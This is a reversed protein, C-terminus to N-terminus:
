FSGKERLHGGTGGPGGGRVATGRVAQDRYGTQRLYAGPHNGPDAGQRHGAGPCQGAARENEGGGGAGAEPDMRVPVENIVCEPMKLHDVSKMSVTIDSIKRYISEDAGPRLKWSFVQGNGWRDPTFFAERYRGIFRGLREGMDLLRYEAFLDMYGNPSPTGTLGVIRKVFPRVKMLSRFRKAQWNKFSSLEDIVVMDWRFPIGSQEVLWPVNERNIVTIESGALVAARREDATGVAVSYTLGRLHDWKRIEEPWTDRAVRLPAVVLVKKVEGRNLLERIATLTIVSKGLGMQLLIAAVPNKLIFETAYSQYDHPKYKM